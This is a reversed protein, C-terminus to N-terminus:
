SPLLYFTCWSNIETGLVHWYLAQGAPIRIGLGDPFMVTQNATEFWSAAAAAGRIRGAMVAIIQNSPVGYLVNESSLSAQCTFSAQDAITDLQIAMNVGVLTVPGPAQTSFSFLGSAVNGGITRTILSQSKMPELTFAEPGTLTPASDFFHSSSEGASSPYHCTTDWGKKPVRRSWAKQASSPSINSVKRTSGYSQEEPIFWQGLWSQIFTYLRVKNWRFTSLFSRMSVSSALVLRSLTRDLTSKQYRSNLLMLRSRMSAREQYRWPASHVMPSQTTISRGNSVLSGGALRSSLTLTTIALRLALPM